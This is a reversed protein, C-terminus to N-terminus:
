NASEIWQVLSAKPLAGVKSDFLKGDKFLIMMPIGRVHFQAALDPHDDVNVKAIIAKGEMEKAIEDLTPALQRCPGCWPAWFDVLVTQKSQETVEKFNKDNLEQVM